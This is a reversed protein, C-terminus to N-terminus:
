MALRSPEFRRLSAYSGGPLPQMSAALRGAPPMQRATGTQDGSPSLMAKLLLRSSGLRNSM